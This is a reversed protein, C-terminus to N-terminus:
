PGLAPAESKSPVELMIASARTDRVQLQYAVGGPSPFAATFSSGQGPCSSV